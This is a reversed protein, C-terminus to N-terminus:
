MSDRLKRREPKMGMRDFDDAEILLIASKNVFKTVGEIEIVTFPEPKNLLDFVREQGGVYVDGELNIQGLNFRVGVKEKDLIDDQTRYMAAEMNCIQTGINYPIAQVTILSTDTREDLM